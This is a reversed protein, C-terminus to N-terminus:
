LEDRWFRRIFNCDCRDCFQESHSLNILLGAFLGAIPWEFTQGLVSQVFSGDVRFALEWAKEFGSLAVAFCYLSLLGVGSWKLLQLNLRM